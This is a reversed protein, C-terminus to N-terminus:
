RAYFSDVLNNIFLLRGARRMFVSSISKGSIKISAIYLTGISYKAFDQIYEWRHLVISIMRLYM